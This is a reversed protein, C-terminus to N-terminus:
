SSGGTARLKGVLDAIILSAQNFEALDMEGLAEVPVGTLRELLMEAKAMGEPLKEAARLDKPKPRRIKLEYVQSKDRLQLPEFLKLTVTGDDNRTINSGAWAEALREDYAAREQHQRILGETKTDM